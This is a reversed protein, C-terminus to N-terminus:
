ANGLASREKTAACVPLFVTVTTGAGPESEITVAGGHNRVTGYVMSLGLGTQGVGRTTFFPDFAQERTAEDMGAGSDAVGLRTFRGPKLGLAEAQAGDLEVVETELSLTGGDSMADLANQALNAIVQRLQHPDGEVEDLEPASRRDITVPDPVELSAIAEEVLEDLEIRASFYRGQRAFGLLNNILESGRRGATLIGDMDKELKSGPPLTRKVGDARGIIVTLMNNLEHAVGGALTGIAELHRAKQVREELAARAAEADRRERMDRAICVYGHLEGTKGQWAAISLSVPIVQEKGRLEAERDTVGAPELEVPADLLADLRQGVLEGRAGGLLECAARNVAAVRGNPDVLLLADVMTSIINDAVNSPTLEFLGHRWIAHAVVTVGVAGAINKSPLLSVNALPLLVETILGAVVPLSSGVLVARRRARAQADPARLWHRLLLGLSGVSAGIIWFVALRVLWPARLYGPSWGWPKLEPPGSGRDTLELLALAAAPVYALVLLIQQLLVPRKDSETFAEACARRSPWRPEALRRSASASTFALVFHVFLAVNLPWLVNASAWLSAVELGAAQRLGAEMVSDHVFTLCLGVFVRNVHSRPNRALVFMAVALGIVAALLPLLTTAIKM